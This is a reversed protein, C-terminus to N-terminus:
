AHRVPEGAQGGAGAGALFDLAAEELLGCFADMAPGHDFGCVHGMGHALLRALHAQPDQGYLLSERALTEASLALAARGGADAAPFSLINTPGPVGMARRNLSAMPGDTLVALDAGSPCGRCLGERCLAEARARLAGLLRALLRLSLPLM